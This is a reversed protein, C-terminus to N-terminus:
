DVIVTHAVGPLPARGSAWGPTSFHGPFPGRGSGRSSVRVRGSNGTVQANYVVGVPVQPHGVASTVAAVSVVPSPLPGNCIKGQDSWFYNKTVPAALVDAGGGSRFNIGPLVLM